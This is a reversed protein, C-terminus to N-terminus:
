EGFGVSELTLQVVPATTPRGSGRAPEVTVALSGARAGLDDAVVPTEGDLLGLSRPAAGARLEWLQHARGGPPGELGTATVVAQRLSRSAVVGLGCGRVGRADAARADPAALVHAIERAMAREEDLRDDTRVLAFALFGAAVLALAAASATLAVLVRARAPTGRANRAGADPVPEPAEQETARVATLIRERLDPPAPVSAARALRVTDAALARVEDTCRPCTELHREFRRTEDPDLADLAYPVALSHPTRGIRLGGAYERVRDFLRIGTHRM